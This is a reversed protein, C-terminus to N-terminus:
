GDNLTLIIQAQNPASALLPITALPHIAIGHPVCPVLYTTKISNSVPDYAVVGSNKPNDDFATIGQYILGDNPNFRNLEPAGPLQLQPGLKRNYLDVRSM